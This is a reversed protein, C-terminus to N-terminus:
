HSHDDEGLTAQILVELNKYMLSIYDDGNNIDDQTLAGLGYLYASSAEPITKQLEMLVADGAPSNAYAEYLILHIDHAIAEETFEIIDSPITNDNHADATLSFIEIEYADHWYNFLMNTTIIPKSAELAMESFAMDLDTLAHVLTSHNTSYMLANDPFLDTLKDKIVAAAQIMRQPDLWFHPDDTTQMENCVFPEETHPVDETNEEETHDHTHSEYCVQAYDIYDALLILEVDGQDFINTKNDPIYNDTNAGIYFLLEANQMSIIEKASWDYADSHTNSGPVQQVNITGGSIQEIIYGVPYVTVYVVPRDDIETRNCGILTISIVSVLLLTFIKKM